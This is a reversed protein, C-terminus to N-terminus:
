NIVHLTGIRIEATVVESLHYNKVADNSNSDYAGDQFCDSWSKSKKVPAENEDKHSPVM